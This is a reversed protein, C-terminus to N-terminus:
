IVTGSGGLPRVKMGPQLASAGSAVIMEGSRLGSIVTIAPGAAPGITISRRTVAQSDPDYVWVYYNKEPDSVLASTPIQMGAKTDPASLLIEVTATMGPLINLGAPRDMVMTVEFTQAVASSEGRNEYMGLDFPQDPLFPFRARASILREPTTTAVLNEPVNVVVFLKNLDMLRVIPDGVRVNVHNDTFRRAVYAEFPATLRTRQLNEGAKELAVRRLDFLAKADDVISRSIGRESLLQRKRTLDQRALDLQVRAERHALVYDTDDIAAILSGAKITQGERVPLEVLPGPVRFTMDITQAAEVQGVFEHKVELSDRTVTFIRAPRISQDAIEQEPAQNCASFLLVTAFGLVTM